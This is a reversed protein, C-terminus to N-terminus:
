FAHVHSEVPEAIFDVVAGNGDLPEGTFIVVCIIESFMEGSFVVNLVALIECEVLEWNERYLFECIEGIKRGM